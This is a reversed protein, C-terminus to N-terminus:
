DSLFDEHDSGEALSGPGEGIRAKMLEQSKGEGQRITQYRSKADSAISNDELSWDGDEDKVVDSHNFPKQCICSAPYEHFEGRGPKMEDPEGMFGRQCSKVKKAFTDWEMKDRAKFLASLRKANPRITRKHGM